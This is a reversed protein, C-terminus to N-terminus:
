NKAVWIWIRIEFLYKSHPYSPKTKQLSLPQIISFMSLPSVTGFHTSITQGLIGWIGWFKDAWNTQGLGFTRSKLSFLSWQADTARTEFSANFKLLTFINQLSILCWVLNPWKQGGHTKFSKENLNQYSSETALNDEENLEQWLQSFLFLIFALLIGNKLQHKNFGFM